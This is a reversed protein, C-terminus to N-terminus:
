ILESESPNNTHFSMRDYFKSMNSIRIRLGREKSTISPQGKQQLRKLKDAIKRGRIFNFLEENEVYKLETPTLSRQYKEEDPIVM